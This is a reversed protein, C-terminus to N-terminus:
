IEFDSCTRLVNRKLAEKPKLSADEEALYDFVQSNQLRCSQGKPNKIVSFRRRDASPSNGIKFGADIFLFDSSLIEVGGQNGSNVNPDVQVSAGSMSVIQATKLDFKIVRDQFGEIVLFGEEVRWHFGQFDQPFLFFARAGHSTSTQEPALSNFVMLLGDSTLLYDRYILTEYGNRPTLGLYCIKKDGSVQQSVQLNEFGVLKRPCLAEVDTAAFSVSTFFMVLFISTKKMPALSEFEHRLPLKM